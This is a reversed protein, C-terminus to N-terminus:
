PLRIDQKVGLEEIDEICGRPIAMTRRALTDDGDREHIEMVVRVVKDDSDGLIGVTTSNYVGVNRVADLPITGDECAADQWTVKVLKVEAGKDLLLDM